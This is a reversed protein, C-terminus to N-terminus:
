RADNAVRVPALDESRRNKVRAEVIFFLPVIAFRSVPIDLAAAFDPGLPMVMRFDLINVFQVAGVCFVVARESTPGAM